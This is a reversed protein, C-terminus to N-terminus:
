EYSKCEKGSVQTNGKKSGRHQVMHVAVGVVLVVASLKHMIKIAQVGELPYLLVGSIFVVILAALIIRNVCRISLGTRKKKMDM